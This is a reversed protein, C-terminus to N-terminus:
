SIRDPGDRRASTKHHRMHQSDTLQRCLHRCLSHGTPLCSFGAIRFPLLMALRGCTSVTWTNYRWPVASAAPSPRTCAPHFGVNHIRFRGLQGRISLIHQHWGDTRAAYKDTRRNISAYLPPLERGRGCATDCDSTITLHCGLSGPSVEHGHLDPRVENTALAFSLFLFFSLLLIIHDCLKLNRSGLREFLSVRHRGITGAMGCGDFRWWRLDRGMDCRIRREGSCGKARDRAKRGWGADGDVGDGSSGSSSSGGNRSLQPKWLEGGRRRSWWKSVSLNTCRSCASPKESSCLSARIRTSLSTISSLHRGRTSAM